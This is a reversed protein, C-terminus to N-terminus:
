LLQKSDFFDLNINKSPELIKEDTMMRAPECIVLEEDLRNVVKICPVFRILRTKSLNPQECLNTLTGIQRENALDKNQRQNSKRFKLM